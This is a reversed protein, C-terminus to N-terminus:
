YGSNQTKRACLMDIRNKFIEVHKSKAALTNSFQRINKSKKYGSMNFRFTHSPQSNLNILEVYGNLSYTIIQETPQAPILEFYTNTVTVMNASGNTNLISYKRSGAQAETGNKLFRVGYYGIPSTFSSVGIPVSYAIIVKASTNAPITVIQQLGLVINDVIGTATFTQNMPATAVFGNAARLTSSNASSAKYINGDSDAKLFFNNVTEDPLTRIRLEGAIDLKKTPATAGICVNGADTVVLETGATRATTGDSLNTLQVRTNTADNTWKSKDTGDANEVWVTGDWMWISNTTTDYVQMGKDTTPNPAIATREATTMRPLLFGKDTATLDLISKTSPTTTGIGVQSFSMTSAFIAFITIIKKM